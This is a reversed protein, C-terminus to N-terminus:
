ARRPQPIIAALEQCYTFCFECTAEGAESLRVWSHGAPWSGPVGRMRGCVAVGHHLIHVQSSAVGSAGAAFPPSQLTVESAAEDCPGARRYGALASSAPFKAVAPLTTLEFRGPGPPRSQIERFLWKLFPEFLPCVWIKHRELQAVPETRLDFRSGEGTQLDVVFISTEPNWSERGGPMVSLLAGDAETAQYSWDRDDFKCLLFKGWNLGGDYFNTAEIFQTIM